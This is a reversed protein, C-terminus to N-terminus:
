GIVEARYFPTALHSQVHVISVKDAGAATMYPIIEVRGGVAATGAQLPITAFPQIKRDRVSFRLIISTAGLVIYGWQGLQDCPAIRGGSGTTFSTQQGAYPLANTWAGAVGAATDLM